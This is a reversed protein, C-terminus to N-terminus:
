GNQFVNFSQLKKLQKGLNSDHILMVVIWAILLFTFIWALRLMIEFLFGIIGAFMSLATFNVALGNLFNLLLITLAYILAIFIVRFYKLKIIKNEFGREDKENKSPMTFVFFCLMFIIGFLIVSFLFYLLSDGTSAVKGSPTVEFFTAFSAVTGEIDGWGTVDHRSHITPTMNYIWTGTGNNTMNQNSFVIGDVNTVTINVFTCSACTQVITYSKNFSAPKLIDVASITTVLFLLAIFFLLRRKTM